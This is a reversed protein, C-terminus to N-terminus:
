AHECSPSAYKGLQEMAERSPSADVAMMASRGEPTLSSACSSASPSGQQANARQPSETAAPVVASHSAVQEGSSPQQQLQQSALAALQMEHQKRLENMQQDHEQSAQRLRAELTGRLGAIETEQERIHMEATEMKHDAVKQEHRLELLRNINSQLVRRAVPLSMQAVQQRLALSDSISIATSAVGTEGDSDQTLSHRLEGITVNKHELQATLDELQEDLERLESSAAADLLESGGVQGLAELEAIRDQVERRTALLGTLEAESVTGLGARKAEIEADVEALQESLGNISHRLSISSRLQRLQLEERSALVAERETLVAERRALELELAEAAEKRRVLEEAQAEIAEAEAAAERAVAEENRSPRGDEVPSASQATGGSLRSGLASTAAAPTNTQQRNPTRTQRDVTGARGLAQAAQARKLKSQAAAVQGQQRQLREKQRSNALELSRVRRTSEDAHRRLASLEREREMRSQDYRGDLCM